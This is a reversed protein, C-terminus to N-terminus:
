QIKTCMTALNKLSSRVDAQSTTSSSPWLILDVEAQIMRFRIKILPPLSLSIRWATGTRGNPDLSKSGSEQFALTALSLSGGKLITKSSNPTLSCNSLWPKSCGEKMFRMAPLTLAVKMKGMPSAGLGM